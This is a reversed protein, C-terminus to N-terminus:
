RGPGPRSRRRHRCCCIRRHASSVKWENLLPFRVAVLVAAGSCIADAIEARTGQGEAEVNGFRSAGVLEPRRRDGRQLM